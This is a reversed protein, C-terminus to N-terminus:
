LRVAPKRVLWKKLIELEKAEEETLRLTITSVKKQAM